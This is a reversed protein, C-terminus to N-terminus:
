FIGRIEDPVNVDKWYGRPASAPDALHTKLPMAFNPHLLNLAEDAEAFRVQRVLGGTEENCTSLEGEWQEVAFVFALLSSAEQGPYVQTLWLLRGVAAARLGTEEFLERQLAAALHEGPEVGGGPLGWVLPGRRDYQNAAILIGGNADSVLANAVLSVRGDNEHESKLRARLWQALFLEHDAIGLGDSFETFAQWLENDIEILPV